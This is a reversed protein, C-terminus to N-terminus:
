KNKALQKRCRSHIKLLRKSIAESNVVETAGGLPSTPTPLYTTRSVYFEPLNLTWYSRLQLKAVPMAQLVNAIIYSLFVRPLVDKGRRYTRWATIFNM